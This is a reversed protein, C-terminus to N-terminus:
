ESSRFPQMYTIDELSLHDALPYNWANVNLAWRDLDVLHVWGPASTYIRDLSTVPPTSTAALCRSLNRHTIVNSPRSLYSSLMFHFLICLSSYQLIQSSAKAALYEAM